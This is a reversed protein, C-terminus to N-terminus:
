GPPNRWPLQLQVRQEISLKKGPISSHFRQIAQTLRKADTERTFLGSFGAAKLLAFYEGLDEAGVCFYCLQGPHNILRSFLQCHEGVTSHTIEAIIVAGHFTPVAELLQSAHPLWHTNGFNAEVVVRKLFSSWRRSNAILVIPHAAM